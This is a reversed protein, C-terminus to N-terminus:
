FPLKLGPPLKLGGTVKGMEEQVLAEAKSRADAHAAVVLDELVEKEDASLLSPDVSVRLMDGKGTLTVEVMGGGSTGTVQITEIRAQAEAMQAQMRQAQKMMEGLNKM